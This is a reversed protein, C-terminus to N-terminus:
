ERIVAGRLGELEDRILGFHTTVEHIAESLRESVPDECKRVTQTLLRKM